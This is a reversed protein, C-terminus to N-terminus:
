VSTLTTFIYNASTDENGSADASRVRYNFLTGSALGSLTISHSTVISANSGLSGYSTTLGYDVKSDSSENTTWTIVAGNITPTAVVASIIPATTDVSTLTTFIYNASTDENGSADASRVRYNFLTGSALGSLTISHSTVISANSGLSGYSTTLGYDVKSDSSENTTWTIVAGNITPTAVVASIIPATTDVSTLTTFIYNASTDENGSADASRVRYNFLTGSALGSLTISHSTVISANSGLSGYSTTLGYDVKSDSSEDTTWTIVAGNITPTAVVASIIPPVTDVTPLISVVIDDADQCGNVDTVTMTYTTTTIPSAVPNAINTASLGTSPSWSYSGGGSASLQVFGGLYISTDAGANATPSANVAVVVTDKQSCGATVTVVYSTTVTPSAIPNAINSNSLGVTPTWSYTTGGTATLQVSSGLCISTDIGASAVVTCATIILTDSNSTGGGPTPSIVTIIKIGVIARDSALIGAILQTSSAYTTSRLSGDVYVKSNPVFNAGSVTLNFANGGEIVSAPSLSNITPMPNAAVVTFAFPTSAGWGPSPNWVYVFFIGATDMDNAPLIASVQGASWFTTTLTDLGFVVKSTTLFNLGGVILTLVGSGQSASAPALSTISPVPNPAAPVVFKKVGGNNGGNIDEAYFFYFYTQGAAGGTFSTGISIFVSDTDSVSTWGYQTGYGAVLDSSDDDAEFWYNTLGIHELTGKLLPPSVSTDAEETVVIPQANVAGLGITLLLIVATLWKTVSNKM